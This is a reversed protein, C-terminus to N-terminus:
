LKVFRAHRVAQGPTQIRVIYVGAALNAVPLSLTGEVNEQTTFHLMRQGQTNIIAVEQGAQGAEAFSVSLNPGDVPVPSLVLNTSAVAAQRAVAAVPSYSVKGDLDEQRLRYYAQASAPATVLSKDTYEYSKGNPTNTTSLYSVQQWTGAADLTREIAFGKNNLEKATVWRLLAAGQPTPSATFSVLAVPLPNRSDGLTFLAALNGSIGTRTITNAVPDSSTRELPEFPIDGTESRFLRLNSVPIGNLENNLYHFVLDFNKINSVSGNGTPQIFFGRNISVSTGAGNYISSTRIVSTNGPADSNATLELGINGFNNTQSKGVLRITSVVGIISGGDSEGILQAGSGLQVGYNGPNDTRTIISGGGTGDNNRVFTINGLIAIRSTLTKRGGGTIRLNVLTPSADFVQDQGALTLVGDGMVFGSNTDQFNGYISLQSGNLSLRAGLTNNSKGSILVSHVQAIPDSPGITPYKGGAQYPITIDSNSNPIGVPKWNNENFWSPDQSTSGNWSVAQLFSGNLTVDFTAVYFVGGNADVINSNPASTSTVNGQYYFQVNYRGPSPAFNILNTKSTLNRWTANGTISGSAFPLNLPIFNGVEDIADNRYVRFLFQTSQVTEDTNAITLAEANIFLSDTGNSRRDFTGINTGQIARAKYQTAPLNQGKAYGSIIVSNGNSVFDAAYTSHTSLGFLLFFTLGALLGKKAHLFM